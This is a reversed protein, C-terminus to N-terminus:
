DAPVHSRAWASGDGGSRTTNASPRAPSGAQRCPSCRNEAQHSLANTLSHGSLPGCLVKHYSRQSSSKDKFYPKLHM